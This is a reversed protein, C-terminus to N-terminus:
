ASRLRKSSLQVLFSSVEITQGVFNTLDPLLSGPKYLFIDPRVNQLREKRNSGGFQKSLSETRTPGGRRKQLASGRAQLADEQGNQAAEGVMRGGRATQEEHNGKREEDQQAVGNDIRM